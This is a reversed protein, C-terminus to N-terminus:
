ESARENGKGLGEIIMLGFSLGFFFAGMRVFSNTQYNLAYEKQGNMLKTPMFIINQNDLIAYSSLM